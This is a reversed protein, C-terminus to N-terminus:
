EFHSIVNPVSRIRVGCTERFHLFVVASLVNRNDSYALVIWCIKRVPQIENTLENVVMLGLSLLARGDASRTSGQSKSYAILCLRATHWFDCSLM